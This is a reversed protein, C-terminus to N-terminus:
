TKVYFNVWKNIYYRKFWSAKQASPQHGNGKINRIRWFNTKRFSNTTWRKKWFVGFKKRGKRQRIAHHLLHHYIFHSDPPSFQTRARTQHDKLFHNLHHINKTHQWNEFTTTTKGWGNRKRKKKKEKKQITKYYIKKVAASLVLFCIFFKLCIDNRKELVSAFARSFDSSHSTM